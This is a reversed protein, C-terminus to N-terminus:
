AALVCKDYLDALLHKPDYRQKLAEYATGNYIRWFEDRPFFSASYLSKLGDMECTKREIMRNFFGTGQSTRMGVSGWFGFDVHLVSSQLPFLPFAVSPDVPRSPCIWVPTIGIERLLFSLFEECHGIPIAIDQIVSESRKGTFRELREALHWRANWRMLKTYTVSNLFRRGLLLRVLPHEAGFARSCWFWDTDWRWIYGKTTLDDTPKERISRYYVSRWTYDSVSSAVGTFRGLTLYMETGSFVVGDVFDADSRCADELAAFFTRVDSYRRHVAHVFRRVPIIRARVKLIYGLTGYSNPFGFFLDRHENDPTCLIVEGSPLLVDMALITEHVLGRRFSTAEIGVGAVAGGITISKLQPVVAPMYGLPLLTDVLTDYTTMGEAEVWGDEVNVSLVTRFDRVSLTATHSTRSRFLNSTDKRLGIAGMEAAKLLQAQLKAKKEEYNEM